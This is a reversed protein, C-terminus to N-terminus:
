FPLVYCKRDDRLLLVFIGPHDRTFCHPRPHLKYHQAPFADLHNVYFTAVMVALSAVILCLM